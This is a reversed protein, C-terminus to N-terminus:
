ARVRFSRWSRYGTEFLGITWCVPGGRFALVAIAGLGLAVPLAWM